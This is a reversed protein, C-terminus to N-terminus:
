ITKFNCYLIDLRICHIFIFGHEQNMYCIGPHEGGEEGLRVCKDDEAEKETSVVASFETNITDTCREVNISLIM